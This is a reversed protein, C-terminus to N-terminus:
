GGHQKQMQEVFAQHRKRMEAPTVDEVHTAMGWTHGFPDIVQAYRDGWFMDTLPMRVTCGAKLARDFVADVDKVYLFVAGTALGANKPARYVGPQGPMAPMEDTMMIKSGAIELEAHVTKGDPTSMRLGEKAGFAKKYFDIAAVCDSQVIHPTVSHYGRPVFSVKKKPTKRAPTKAAPKRVPKKKSAM